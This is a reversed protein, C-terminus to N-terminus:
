SLVLLSVAAFLVILIPLTYKLVYGFFTSCQVGASEAVSKVMFNPGNGIYTNAGFFDSGLSVAVLYRWMAPEALLTQVHAPNEVSLHHLGFAAGIVYAKSTGLRWILPRPALGGVNRPRHSSSPPDQSHPNTTAAISSRVAEASPTAPPPPM